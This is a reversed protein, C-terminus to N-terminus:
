QQRNRNLIEQVSQEMTLPAPPAQQYMPPYMGGAVGGGIIPQPATPAYQPQHGGYIRVAQLLFASAQGVDGGSQTALSQALTVPLGNQGYGIVTRHAYDAFQPSAAIAGATSDVSSVVNLVSRMNNKPKQAQQTNAPQAPQNPDVVPAGLADTLLGELAAEDTVGAAVFKDRLEKRKTDVAQSRSQAALQDRIEKLIAAQDDSSQAQAPQEDFLSGTTVGGPYITGASTNHHHTWQPQAQPAQQPYPAPAGQQPAQQPQGQPAYQPAYQPQGQPAYQTAMPDVPAQVPPVANYPNPQVPHQPQGQPAQQAQTQKKRDKVSTRAITISSM